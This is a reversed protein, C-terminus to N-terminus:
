SQQRPLKWVYVMSQCSKAHQYNFVTLPKTRVHGGWSSHRPLSSLDSLDMLCSFCIALPRCSICTIPWRWYRTCYQLEELPQFDFPTGIRATVLQPPISWGLGRNCPAFNRLGIHSLFSSFSLVFSTSTAVRLRRNPVRVPIEM